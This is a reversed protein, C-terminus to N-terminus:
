RETRVLSGILAGVVACPVGIFLVARGVEDAGCSTDPDNCFGILFVTTAAVGVLGGILLGTGTHSRTAARDRVPLLSTRHERAQRLVGGQVPEGHWAPFPTNAVQGYLPATPAFGLVALVLGAAFVVPHRM